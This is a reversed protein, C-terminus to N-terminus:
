SPPWPSELDFIRPPAGVGWWWLGEAVGGGRLAVPTRRWSPMLAPRAKAGTM